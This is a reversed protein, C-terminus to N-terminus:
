SATSGQARAFWAEEEDPTMRRGLLSWGALHFAQSDSVDAATIPPADSTKTPDANTAIAYIEKFDALVNGGNAQFADIIPAGDQVAKAVVPAVSAVRDLYPQALTLAAIINSAYPIPIFPSIFQLVPLASDGFKALGGVVDVFTVTKAAIQDVSEM